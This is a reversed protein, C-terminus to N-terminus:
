TDVTKFWPHKVIESAKLRMNEDVVLLNNLLSFSSDKFCRLLNKNSLYNELKNNVLASYGFQTQDWIYAANYTSGVMCQYYVMGLAWADAARGDYVDENFIQPAVYRGNDLTISSKNCLFEIENEDFLEAVGYDVLKISIADNAKLSGSDTEIYECNQLMVNEMCIDLHICRIVNHLWSTTVALSRIISKIMKVYESRCLKNSRLLQDSHSVFKKLTTSCDVYEMVLYFYTDTEFSDIYKPICPHKHNTLKELIFAEKVCNEEICYNTDGRIAIHQQFLEKDTKKIVVHSNLPASSLSNIVEAKILQGQLTECIHDIQKYGNRALTIDQETQVMKCLLTTFPLDDSESDSSPFSTRTSSISSFSNTTTSNLRSTEIYSETQQSDFMALSTTSQILYIAM